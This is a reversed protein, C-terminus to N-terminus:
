HAGSSLLKEKNSRQQPGEPGQISPTLSALMGAWSGHEERLDLCCDLCESTRVREWGAAEPFRSGSAEVGLCFRDQGGSHKGGLDSGVTRSFAMCHRGMGNLFHLHEKWVTRGM